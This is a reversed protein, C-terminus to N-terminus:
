VIDCNKNANLCWMSIKKFKKLFSEQEGEGKFMKRTLNSYKVYNLNIWQMSQKTFIISLRKTENIIKM